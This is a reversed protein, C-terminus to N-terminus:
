RPTPLTIRDLRYGQDRADDWDISLAECFVRVPYTLDKSATEELAGEPHSICWYENPGLSGAAAAILTSADM